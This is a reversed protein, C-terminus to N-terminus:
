LLHRWCYQQLIEVSRCIKKSCLFWAFKLLGQPYPIAWYEFGEYENREVEKNVHSIGLFVVRYGLETLIKGNSLVRHAAANKDPLEFGGVYIITGKEM